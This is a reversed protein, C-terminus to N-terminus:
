KQDPKRSELYEFASDYQEQMGIGTAREIKDWLNLDVDQGMLRRDIFMQAIMKQQTKSASKIVSVADSTQTGDLIKEIMEKTLITSYLDDLGHRRVVRKDAIFFLGENLFHSYNELVDVLDSYLIRKSSGFSSFSFLKGRGGGQTSLNLQYPCLSIVRIYDNPNIQITDYEEDSDLYSEDKKPVVINKEGSTLREIKLQLEKMQELLDQVNVEAKVESSANDSVQSSNSKPRGRTAM